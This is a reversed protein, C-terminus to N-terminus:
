QSNYRFGRFQMGARVQIYQYMDTCSKTLLVYWYTSTRVQFLVRVFRMCGPLAGLTLQLLTCSRHLLYSLIVDFKLFHLTWTVCTCVPVDSYQYMSTRVPVSKLQVCAENQSHEVLKGVGALRWVVSPTNWACLTKRWHLRRWVSVVWAPSAAGLCGSGLTSRMCMAAVGAMLMQQTLAAWPSPLGRTSASSTHSHLHLTVLWFCPFSYQHIILVIIWWYM